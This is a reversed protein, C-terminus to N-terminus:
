KPNEYCHSDSKLETIADASNLSQLLGELVLASHGFTFIFSGVTGPRLFLASLTLDQLLVNLRM